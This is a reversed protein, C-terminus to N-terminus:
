FLQLILSGHPPRMKRKTKMLSFAAERASFPKM